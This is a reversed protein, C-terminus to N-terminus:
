TDERIGKAQQGWFLVGEHDGCIDKWPIFRGGVEEDSWAGGYEGVLKRDRPYVSKAVWRRGDILNSSIFDERQSSRVSERLLFPVFPYFWMKRFESDISDKAGTCHWIGYIQKTVFNTALRVKRVWNEASAGSYARPISNYLKKLARRVNNPMQVTYPVFEMGQEFMDVHVQSTYSRGSYQLYGLFPDNGAQPQFLASDYEIAIHLETEQSESIKEPLIRDPPGGEVESGNAIQKSRSYEQRAWVNSLYYQDSESQWFNVDHTAAIEDMTADIVKRMDGIPGMVTGSNMWRPDKSFIDDPGKDTGFANEGLFSSPVAWCRGAAPDTPWCIKDPGWFVTQKMDREHLETVSIGMREALHIDAKQAVNFYREVMVEVPLQHIIDYGDVMIVLDEDEEPDLSDLYRKMTRLKALHTQAADLEGQGNWGLLTPVPYRNVAASALNYCLRLNSISAPVLFHLRSIKEQGTWKNPPHDVHLGSALRTSGIPAINM